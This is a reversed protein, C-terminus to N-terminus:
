EVGAHYKGFGSTIGLADDIAKLVIDHAIKTEAKRPSYGATKLTAAIGRFNM